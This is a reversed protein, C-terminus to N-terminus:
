AKLLKMVAHTRFYMFTLLALAFVVQPRRLRCRGPCRGCLTYASKGTVSILLMFSRLDSLALPCSPDVVWGSLRYDQGGM